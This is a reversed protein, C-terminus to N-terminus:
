IIEQITKLDHEYEATDYHLSVKRERLLDLFDWVPMEALQRAQGFSLIDRQFFYVAMEKKLQVGTESEKYGLARLTSQPISINCNIMMM